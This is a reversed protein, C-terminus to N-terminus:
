LSQSTLLNINQIYKPWFSSMLVVDNKHESEPGIVKIDLVNKNIRVKKNSFSFGRINKINNKNDFMVDKMLITKFMFGIIFLSFIRRIISDPINHKKGEKLIFSTLTSDKIVRKIDKSNASNMQLTEHRLLNKEKESSIGLNTKLLSHIQTFVTFDDKELKISFEKGMYYCCFYNKQIYVCPPFRGYAMDQYLLSWYDDKVNNAFDLFIPYLLPKNM